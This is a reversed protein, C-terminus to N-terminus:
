DGEVGQSPTSNVVILSCTINVWVFYRRALSAEYRMVINRYAIKPEKKDTGMAIM